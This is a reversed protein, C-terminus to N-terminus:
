IPLWLLISKYLLFPPLIAWFLYLTVAVLIVLFYIVSAAIIRLTRWILGLFFGMITRDGYLPETFHRLTVKLAFVKDLEELFGLLHELWWRFGDTYWDELFNTIGSYIQWLLYIPLALMIKM